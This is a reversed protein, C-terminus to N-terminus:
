FLLLCTGSVLAAVSALYTSAGSFTIVNGWAYKTAGSKIYALTQIEEGKFFRYGNTYDARYAAMYMWIRWVHPNSASTAGTAPTFKQGWCTSIGDQNRNAASSCDFATFGSSDFTNIGTSSVYSPLTQKVTKRNAIDAMNAPTGTAFACNLGPSWGQQVCLAFEDGAM